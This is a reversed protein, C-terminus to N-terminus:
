ILDPMTMFGTTKGITMTLVISGSIVPGAAKYRSDYSPLAELDYLRGLFELDDLRGYWKVNDLKLGDIINRRTVASVDGKQERWEPRTSIKPTIKVNFWDDTFQKIVPDLCNSIQEEFTGKKTGLGFNLTSWPM